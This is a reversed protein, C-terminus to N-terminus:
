MDAVRDFTKNLKNQRLETKLRARAEIRQHAKLMKVDKPKAVGSLGGYAKRQGRQLAVAGGTSTGKNVEEDYIAGLRLRTARRHAVVFDREDPARLRQRYYRSWKRNGVTKGDFLVLEGLDTVGLTRSVEIYEGDSDEAKGERKGDDDGSEGMADDGPGAGAGAASADQILGRKEADSYSASFDYFSEYEHLDEGEEYLLKCHSRDTM